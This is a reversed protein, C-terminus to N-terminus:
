PVVQRDRSHRCPGELAPAELTRPLLRRRYRTRVGVVTGYRQRNTLHKRSSNEINWASNPPVNSTVNVLRKIEGKSRLTSTM